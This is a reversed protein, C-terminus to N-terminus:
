QNKLIKGCQPYSIQFFYILIQTRPFFFSHCGPGPCTVFEGNCVQRTKDEDGGPGWRPVLITRLKKSIGYHYQSLLKKGHHHPEWGAAVAALSSSPLVTVPCAVPSQRGSNDHRTAHSSSLARGNAEPHMTCGNIFTAKQWLQEGSGRRDRVSEGKLLAVHM